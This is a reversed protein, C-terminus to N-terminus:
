VTSWWPESVQVLGDIEVDDDLERELVTKLVATTCIGSNVTPSASPYIRATGLRWMYTARSQM